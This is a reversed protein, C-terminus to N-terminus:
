MEAASASSRPRRVSSRSSRLIAVVQPFRRGATFRICNSSSGCAQSDNRVSATSSITRPMSLMMKRTSAPRDDASRAARAARSIRPKPKAISVRMASSSDTMQSAVKRAGATERQESLFDRHRSRTSNPPRGAVPRASRAALDAVHKGSGPALRLAPARHAAEPQDDRLDADDVDHERQIRHEGGDPRACCMSTMTAAITTETSTM